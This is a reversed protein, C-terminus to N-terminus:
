EKYIIRGCHECKVRGVDNLKALPAGSIDMRCGGCNKGADLASFVPYINHKRIEKYLALDGSNIKAELAAMEGQLEVIRPQVQAMAKKFEANCHSTQALVKNLQQSLDAYQRNAAEADAFINKCDRECRAVNDLQGAVRRKMYQVEDSDAIGGIQDLYDALISSLKTYEKDLNSLAVKLDGTKGDLKSLQIEIDARLANSKQGQVRFENKELDRKIRRLEGDLRQYTLLEQQM